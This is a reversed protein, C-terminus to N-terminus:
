ARTELVWLGSVRIPFGRLKVKTTSGSLHGDLPEPVTPADPPYLAVSLDLGEDLAKVTLKIEADRPADFTLRDVEGATEINGYIKDGLDFTAEANVALAPSALVAVLLLSAGFTRVILMVPETM